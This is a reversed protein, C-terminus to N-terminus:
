RPACFRVTTGDQLTSPLGCSLTPPCEDNADGQCAVYCFFYCFGDLGPLPSCSGFESNAQDCPQKCIGGDCTAGGCSPAGSGDGSCPTNVYRRECDPGCSWRDYLRGDPFTSPAGIECLEGREIVGNGCVPTCDNDNTADAGDPCCGDGSIRSTIPQEECKATCTAANGSYTSGNCGSPRCSSPSPCPKSSTPDCTENGTVAGDGCTTPCDPDTAANAGKPCCSDGPKPTTVEHTECKATCASPDGTFVAEMCGSSRCTSATPCPTSSKPDCQENGTLVGDGCKTPCDNDNLANAGDPCCGDGSNPAVIPLKSCEASCQDASGTM